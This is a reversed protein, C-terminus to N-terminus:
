RIGSIIFAMLDFHDRLATKIKQIPFIANASFPKQLAEALQEPTDTLLDRIGLWDALGDMKSVFHSYMNYVVTRTGSLCATMTGHLSTGVFMSAGAIVTIIDEMSLLRDLIICNDKELKAVEKVIIKDDHCWNVAMVVLKLCAKKCYDSVCEYVAVWNDLTGLQLVLYEDEGNLHIIRRAAQSATGDTIFPFYDDLNWLSDPVVHSGLIRREGCFRYFSYKDRFSLYDLEALMERDDRSITYPMGVSNVLVKIHHKRGMEVPYKWIRGNQYSITEGHINTFKIENNHLLEGGGIIIADFQVAEHIKEFEKYPYIEYGNNYESQADSPSFFVMKHVQIRRGLEFELAKPFLMDGLSNIDFAGFVAIGFGM